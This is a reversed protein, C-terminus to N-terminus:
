TLPFAKQSRKSLFIQISEALTPALNDKTTDWVVHGSTDLVQKVMYYGPYKYPTGRKIRYVKNDPCYDRTIRDVVSDLADPYAEKVTLELIEAGQELMFVGKKYEEVEMKSMTSVEVRTGEPLKRVSLNYYDIAQVIDETSMEM